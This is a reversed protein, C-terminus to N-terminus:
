LVPDRHGVVVVTAGDAARRAIARLVRDETPGDLHSTPEDLLLLPAQSGLVRAVGLRQRQGLSLGVGGRGIVTDLGDPLVALVEDFGAARCAGDLDALTGFLALNDRISGPVL